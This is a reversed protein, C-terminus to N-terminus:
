FGMEKMSKNVEDAIGAITKSASYDDHKGDNLIEHMKNYVNAIIQREYFSDFLGRKGRHGIDIKDTFVNYELYISSGRQQCKKGYAKDYEVFFGYLRCASVFANIHKIENETFPEVRPTKYKILKNALEEDSNVDECFAEWERRHVIWNQNFKKHMKRVEIPQVVVCAKEGKKFYQGCIPCRKPNDGTPVFERVEGDKTKWTWM